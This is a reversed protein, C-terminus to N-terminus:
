GSMLQIYETAIRIALANERSPDVDLGYSKENPNWKIWSSINASSYAELTGSAIHISGPAFASRVKPRSYEKSVADWMNLATKSRQERKLDSCVSLRASRIEKIATLIRSDKIDLKMKDCMIIFGMISEVTTLRSSLQRLEDEKTLLGTQKIEEMELPSFLNTYQRINLDPIIGSAKLAERSPKFAKKSNLIKTWKEPNEKIVNKMLLSLAHVLANGYGSCEKTVWRQVISRLVRAWTFDEKRTGKKRPGTLAPKPPRLINSKGTLCEWAICAVFQNTAHLIERHSKDTEGLTIDGIRLHAAYKAFTRAEEKASSSLFITGPAKFTGGYEFENSRGKVLAVFMNYPDDEILDDEETAL